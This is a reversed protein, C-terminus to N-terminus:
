GNVLLTPNGDNTSGSPTATSCSNRALDTETKKRKSHCLALPQVRCCQGVSSTFLRHSSDNPDHPNTSESPGRSDFDVQGEPYQQQLAQHTAKAPFRLGLSRVEKPSMTTAKHGEVKCESKNPSTDVQDKRAKNWLLM